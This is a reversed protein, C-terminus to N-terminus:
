ANGHQGTGRIKPITQAMGTSSMTRQRKNLQQKALSALNSTLIATKRYPWSRMPPNWTPRWSISDLTTHSQSIPEHKNVPALSAIYKFGPYAAPCRESPSPRTSSDYSNRRRNFRCFPGYIRLWVPSKSLLLPARLALPRPHDSSCADHAACPRDVPLNFRITPHDSPRITPSTTAKEM